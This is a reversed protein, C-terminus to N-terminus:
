RVWLGLHKNFTLWGGQECRLRSRRFLASCKAEASVPQLVNLASPQKLGYILCEEQNRATLIDYQEQNSGPFCYAAPCDASYKVM